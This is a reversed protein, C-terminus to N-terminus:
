SRICLDLASVFGGHFVLIVEGFGILGM